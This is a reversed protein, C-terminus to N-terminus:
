PTRSPTTGQRSEPTVSIAKAISQGDRVEYSAKVRDGERIESLRRQRGRVDILTDATIELTRGVNGFLGAAVELRGGAPDVKTVTGELSSVTPLPARTRELSLVPQPFQAMVPGTSLVMAVTCAVTVMHLTISRTSRTM